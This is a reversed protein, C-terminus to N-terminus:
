LMSFIDSMHFFAGLINGLIGSVREKNPAL